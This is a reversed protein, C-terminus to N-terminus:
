AEKPMADINSHHVTFSYAVVWPNADWSGAGNISAWLNAYASQASDLCHEPGPVDDWHWGPHQRPKFPHFTTGGDVSMTGSPVYTGFNTYRIGEAIADQESIDHLRQVRVDTVTLTLRSFERPMHISPWYSAGAHPGDAAYIPGGGGLGSRADSITWVGNGTHSWTERVWLRDGAAIRLPIGAVGSKTKALRMGNGCVACCLGDEDILPHFTDECYGSPRSGDPLPKRWLSHDCPGPQPKILRRTQTKAGALLARVMPASFLIQRDTM